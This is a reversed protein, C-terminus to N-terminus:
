SIFRSANTKQRRRTFHWLILAVGVSHELNSYWYRIKFVKSYDTGCSMSTGHIRRMEPTNIYDLLWTPFEPSLIKFYEKVEKNITDLYNKM